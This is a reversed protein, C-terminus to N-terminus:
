TVPLYSFKNRRSFMEVKHINTFHSTVVIKMGCAIEKQTIFLRTKNRLYLM